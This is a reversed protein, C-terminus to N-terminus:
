KLVGMKSLIISAAVTAATETRLVRCGMSCLVFNNKQMIKRENDTWGRESGIAAIVSKGQSYNKEMFDTLSMEPEINDLAILLAGENKKDAKIADLCERLNAFQFVQPVHTSKAQVSGERLLLPADRVIDSKMYSKEGLETGSLYIAQSGLGAMDRFLRRLQIPRPFGIIMSLPYLPKGDSLETFKFSIGEDDISTIEAKGAKGGIIGADFFDGQNKHLVKIIHSAREDKLDLPRAIEDEDFLVINM